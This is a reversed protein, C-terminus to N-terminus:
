AKECLSAAVLFDCSAEVDTGHSFVYLALELRSWVGLKDFATRL